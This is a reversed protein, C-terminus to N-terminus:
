SAERGAQRGDDRPPKRRKKRERRGRKGRSIKGLKEGRCGVRTRRAVKDDRILAFFTLRRRARAGNFDEDPPTIERPRELSM